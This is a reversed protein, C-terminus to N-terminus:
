APHASDGAANPDVFLDALKVSVAANSSLMLDATDGPQLVFRRAFHSEAPIPEQYIELVRDPINAIWYTPIGAEAYLELKTTRDFSLSSDSVEIAAIVDAPGPHRFRYLERVGRVVTIDPEPERLNTLTIPQQIRRHCGHSEVQNLNVELFNVASVHRPSHSRIDGGRESRDTRVLFGDILEIPKGEDLIGSEIMRHYLDVTIPEILRASGNILSERVSSM